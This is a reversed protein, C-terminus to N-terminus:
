SPNNSLPCFVSSDKKFQTLTLCSKWPKFMVRNVATPSKIEPAIGVGKSKAIGVFDDLSVFSYLWNFNPDRDPSVQKRKLTHLEDLTFDFTFYNDVIDGKDNWDFNPDDDDMNYTAIRNAFESHDQVNCVEKIWAEHSCVLKLDQLLIIIM